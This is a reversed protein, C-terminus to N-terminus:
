ARNTGARHGALRGFVAGSMLGAGGPYNDHFLGGVMEGAAHLGPVPSGDEDLVRAHSDVRLGGFTFTIACRVPFALYPPRDLPLAWNSKPPDIGRTAKGDKVGPDFTGGGVAANFSTVTHVLASPDVDMKRALEPITGAQLVTSRPHRYEDRLLPAVRQDFLQFAVGGPQELVARGYRAYTYNRFDFGEDLFRRGERNVVIGLPYSHKKFVDGEVTRDGYPPASADTAIAHCGHFAGACAAGLSRAMELGDGRNFETGRVRADRWAAGLHRARLDPDAEFGGCALIVSGAEHTETGDEGDTSVRLGGAGREISRARRGYRIDVGLRECRDFLAGVLGIGRGVAKVALGGWFRHVGDHEFAQNDFILAFGVGQERLWTMTPRSQRSLVEVLAPDARGGSAEHLDAAFAEAPYPDLVIRSADEDALAPILRRVDDLGGHAFRIAGDTFWSNGGRRERPAAELVTVDAGQLRAAIAASLAANGAGVVVVDTERAM